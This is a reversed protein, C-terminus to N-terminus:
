WNKENQLIARMERAYDEVGQIYGDCYARAKEIQESCKKNAQNELRDAIEHTKDMWEKQEM